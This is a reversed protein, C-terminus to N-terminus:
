ISQQIKALKLNKDINETSVLDMLEQSSRGTAASEEGGDALWKDTRIQTLVDQACFLGVTYM